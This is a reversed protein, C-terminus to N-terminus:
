MQRTQIQTSHNYLLNLWKSTFQLYYNELRTTKTVNFQFFTELVTKSKKKFIYQTCTKLKGEDLKEVM